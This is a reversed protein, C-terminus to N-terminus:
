NKNVFKVLVSPTKFLRLWLELWKGKFRFKVIENNLNTWFRLIQKGDQDYLSQIGSRPHIETSFINKGEVRFQKGAGSYVDFTRSFFNNGIIFM